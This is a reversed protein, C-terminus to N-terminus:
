TSYYWLDRHHRSPAPPAGKTAASTWSPRRVNAASTAVGARQHGFRRAATRGKEQAVVILAECKQGFLYTRRFISAPNIYRTPPSRTPTNALHSPVTTESTNKGSDRRGRIGRLRATSLSHRADGTGHYQSPSISQTEPDENYRDTLHELGARSREHDGYLANAKCCIPLKVAQGLTVSSSFKHSRTSGNPKALQGELHLACPPSSRAMAHCHGSCCRATSLVLQRRHRGTSHLDQASDTRLCPAENWTRVIVQRTLRRARTSPVPIHTDNRDPGRTITRTRCPTATYTHRSCTSDCSSAHGPLTRNAALLLMSGSTTNSATKSMIGSSSRVRKCAAVWGNWKANDGGDANDHRLRPVGKWRNSVPSGEILRSGRNSCDACRWRHMDSAM